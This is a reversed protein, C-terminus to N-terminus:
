LFIRTLQKYMIKKNCMPCKKYDGIAKQICDYCFVHGCPTAAPQRRRVNEMCIPCMYPEDSDGLDSRLRKVPQKQPSCLDIIENPVNHRCARCHCQMQSSM